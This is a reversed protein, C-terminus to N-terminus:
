YAPANPDGYGAVTCITETTTTGDSYWGCVKVTGWLDGPWGSYFGNTGYIDAVYNEDSYVKAGFTGSAGILWSYDFLCAGYATINNWKDHLSIDKTNGLCAGTGVGWSVNLTGDPLITASIGTFENNEKNHDYINALEKKGAKSVYATTKFRPDMWDEYAAYPWTGYVYTLEEVDAPKEIATPLTKSLKEDADLLLKSIRGPLNLSSKAATYYTQQDKVGKDYGIWVANTYNSTSSIMWKDKAAGKPINYVLGDSGWDTTGTKAYVPYNRKLIQMYNFYPGEVAFQLLESVLYASGSSIVKRNQDQPYFEQKDQTIIKSITHPKNYIGGNMMAAQAGAMEQVTTEFLTGGIAFSLHFNKTSVRSFGLSKLYNVVSEKGIEDVVEKLTLIAPINLSQAFAQQITVDGRYQGDFNKLVRSEGAYTIPRDTLVMQDSFGLYEFALAYSLFSKVASGPQKFQSTARNLLRAGDYNRGGGIGVIAGNKNNISILAVQMLDDPWPIDATGDQISDITAQVNRDLNTYINMGTVFPDKGTMAQAENIVADIYSRYTYDKPDSKAVNEGVLLDEVKIAKALDCEEKTIYGHYVMMDLVTNRRNTAYDLYNYPNFANPRNIIGALLAQESLTTQTSDKGFYYKSAKQVGRINGGFNLKNLYLEFIKKKDLKKELEIALYIEQVKRDVKKAAMTSNDGSDVQFYTNKVLQMSFTSGGQGFSRSKLNEIIAKSFRPIDFGFHQFYRSDEISIFADILGEPIEKYTINERLYTGIEQILEGNGDYIKTSENSVFDDLALPPAEEVMKTAVIIGFIGVTLGVIIFLVVLASLVNLLGQVYNRKKKVKPLDIPEVKDDKVINFVKTVDDSSTENVNNLDKNEEM